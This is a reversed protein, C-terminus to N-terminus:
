PQRCEEVAEASLQHARGAAFSLGQEALVDICYLRVLIQKKYSRMM